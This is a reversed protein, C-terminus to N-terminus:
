QAAAQRQELLAALTEQPVMDALAWSGAARQSKKPRAPVDPTKAAAPAELSARVQKMALYKFQSISSVALGCIKAVDENSVHDTDQLKDFAVDYDLEVKGTDISVGSLQPLYVGFSLSMILLERDTLGANVLLGYVYEKDVDLEVQEFALQASEDALFAARDVSQDEGPLVLEDLSSTYVVGSTDLDRFDEMSIGLEAALDEDSPDRSLRNTLDVRARQLGVWQKYRGDSMGSARRARALSGIISREIFTHAYSVFKEPGKTYDFSMVANWLGVNGEQMLEDRMAWHKAFKRDLISPVLNLMRSTLTDAAITLDILSQEAAPTMSAAGNQDLAMAVAMGREIQKFLTDIQELTLPASFAMSEYYYQSKADDSLIRNQREDSRLSSIGRAVHPHDQYRATIESFTRIRDRTSAFSVYLPAEDFPAEDQDQLVVPEETRVAVAVVEAVAADGVALVVEDGNQAPAKTREDIIVVNGALKLGTDSIKVAGGLYRSLLRNAVTKGIPARSSRYGSRQDHEINELRDLEEYSLERGPNLMLINFLLVGRPKMAATDMWRATDRIQCDDNLRVLRPQQGQATEPQAPPLMEADVFDLRLDTHQLLDRFRLEFNQADQFELEYLALTADAEADLLNVGREPAGQLLM